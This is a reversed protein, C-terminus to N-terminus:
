PRVTSCRSLYISARPTRRPMDWEQHPALVNHYASALANTAQALSYKGVGLQPGVVHIVHHQEAAGGAGYAHYKAQGVATIAKQVAEPFCQNQALGIHNYIASSLDRVAPYAGGREGLDIGHSPGQTHTPPVGGDEAIRRACKGRGTPEKGSPAARM